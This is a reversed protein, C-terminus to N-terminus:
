QMVFETFYVDMVEGEYAEIVKERLKAKIADRAKNSSLEAVSKYSLESIALDLAKSGDPPEKVKLTAQLALGLKLFHGGTLNVTISPIVVVSGPKPAPAPGKKKGFMFYGGGGLLLVVVVIMILKKKSKKKEGAPAAEADGEASKLKASTTAM